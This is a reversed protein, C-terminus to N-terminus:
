AITTPNPNTALIHQYLLSFQEKSSLERLISPDQQSEILEHLARLIGPHRQPSSVIREYLKRGRNITEGTEELPTSLPECTLLIYLLSACIQIKEDEKVGQVLWSDNVDLAIQAPLNPNYVGLYYYAFATGDPHRLVDKVETIRPSLEIFYPLARQVSDYGSSRDSMMRRILQRYFESPFSGHKRSLFKHMLLTESLRRSNNRKAIVEDTFDLYISSFDFIDFLEPHKHDLLHRAIKSFETINGPFAFTIQIDDLHRKITDSGKLASVVRLVALNGLQSNTFGFIARNPERGYYAVTRAVAGSLSPSTIKEIDAKVLSELIDVLETLNLPFYTITEIAKAIERVINRQSSPTIRGFLDPHCLTSVNHTFLAPDSAVNDGLVQGILIDFQASFGPAECHELLEALSSKKSFIRRLVPEYLVQAAVKPPVNYDLAVLSEGANEGLLDEHLPIKNAILRPRLEETRGGHKLVAFYAHHSLPIDDPWQIATTIMCNIIKKIERPGPTALAGFHRVFLLYITHSTAADCKGKFAEVLLKELYTRWNSLVPPPVFITIQFVKDLFHPDASSPADEENAQSEADGTPKADDPATKSAALTGRAYPILVWLRKAWNSSSFAPNDIFSRLVPWVEAAEDAPLRDMNDLVVVLKRSEDKLLEDMFDRFLAQFELTSADLSEVTHITESVHSKLLFAAWLRLRRKEDRGSIALGIIFILLPFAALAAGAVFFWDPIPLPWSNLNIRYNYKALVGVLLASGLPALTTSALLWKPLRGIDPESNKTVTKVRSSLEDRRRGWESNARNDAESTRTKDNLWGNDIAASILSELFARRLPDGQHVWADFSFFICKPDNAFKNQLIKIISSKGSGWEGELGITMGGDNEQIIQNITSAIREHSQFDDSTTPADELIRYIPKSTSL